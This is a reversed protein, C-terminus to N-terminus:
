LGGIGVYTIAQLVFFLPQNGYSFTHTHGLDGGTYGVVFPVAGGVDYDGGNGLAERFTDGGLHAVTHHHSPIEDLILTHPEVSVEIINFGSVTGPVEEATGHRFFMHQILPTQIGNYTGGDCPAWGEPFPETSLESWWTILGALPTLAAYAQNIEPADLVCSGTGIDPFTNQVASKVLRMHDDGEGLFEEPGPSLPDLESIKIATPDIPEIPM